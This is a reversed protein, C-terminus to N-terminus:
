DVGLRKRLINAHHREHGLMTRALDAVTVHNGSASGGRAWAGAPLRAFFSLHSQRLAAFEDALQALTHTDGAAVEAYANEDFGPLPTADGRAFRLARYGLIRETDILHGVVQRVSWSYPAHVTGAEAEPVALVLAQTRAHEGALAALTDADPALHHYNPM